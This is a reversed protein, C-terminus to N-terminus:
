VPSIVSGRRREAFYRRRFELCLYPLAQNVDTLVVPMTKVNDATDSHFYLANCNM